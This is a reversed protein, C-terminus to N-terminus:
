HHILLFRTRRCREKDRLVGWVGNQLDREKIYINGAINFSQIGHHLQKTVMIGVAFNNNVFINMM